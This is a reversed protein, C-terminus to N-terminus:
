KESQDQLPDNEVRNYSLLQQFSQTTCLLELRIIYNLIAKSHELVTACRQKHCALTSMQSHHVIEDRAFSVDVGAHLDTLLKYVLLLKLIQTTDISTVM